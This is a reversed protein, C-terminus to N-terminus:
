NEKIVIEVRRNRKRNLETTNPKLPKSEGYGIIEVQSEDINSNKKLYEFVSAARKKSLALNFEETGSNDTHGEVIFKKDKYRSLIEGAKNLIAFSVRKLTAKGIDFEINPLDMVLGKDEKKLAIEAEIKQFDTTSRNSAKDFAVVQYYITSGGAVKSGDDLQGDWIFKETQDIKHGPISKLIEAKESDYIEIAWRDIGTGEDSVKAEFNVKDKEGTLDNPSFSEDAKGEVKPKINDVILDKSSSNVEMGHVSKIKMSYQLEEMKDLTKKKNNKLDWKILKPPDGMGSLNRVIEGDKNKIEVDWKNIWNELSSSKDLEVAFQNKKRGSSFVPANAAIDFQPAQCLMLYYKAREDNPNILVAKKFDKKAEQYESNRFKDIGNFFAMLFDNFKKQSKDFYGKAKNNNPNLMLSKMWEDSANRYDRQIYYQVGKNFHEESEKLSEEDVPEQPWLNMPLLIVICVSLIIKIFERNNLKIM